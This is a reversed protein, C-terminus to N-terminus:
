KKQAGIALFMGGLAAIASQLNGSLTLKFVKGGVGISIPFFPFQAYRSFFHVISASFYRHLKPNNKGLSGSEVHLVKSDSAVDLKWGAKRLRYCLDIDEWYMFFSKEDFIGASDLAERRLLMSAATLYDLSKPNVPAFCHRSRGTLFNVYGGGWAQIQSPNNMYLLVSGVAGNAPDCNMQNVLASLTAPEVVTDNNLLWIYSAGQSIAYRIGINCGGGFGLNSDSRLLKVDPYRSEIQSCSDDQSANDVVVVKNNVYDIKALSDLCKLTHPWGNWNLVITYVTESSMLKRQYSRLTPLKM